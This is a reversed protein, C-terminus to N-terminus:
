ERHTLYIFLIKFFFSMSVASVFPGDDKRLKPLSPFSLLMLRIKKTSQPNKSIVTTQHVHGSSTLILVLDLQEDYIM